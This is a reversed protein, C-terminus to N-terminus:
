LSKSLLVPSSLRREFLCEVFIPLLHSLACLLYPTRQIAVWCASFSFITAAGPFGVDNRLRLGFNNYKIRRSTPCESRLHKTLTQGSVEPRIAYNELPNLRPAVVRAGKPQTGGIRPSGEAAISGPLRASSSGASQCSWLDASMIPVNSSKLRRSTASGKCASKCIEARSDARPSLTKRFPFIGFRTAM